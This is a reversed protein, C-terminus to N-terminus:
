RAGAGVGGMEERSGGEESEGGAVLIRQQKGLMWSHGMRHSKWLSDRRGLVRKKGPIGMKKLSRCAIAIKKKRTLIGLGVVGTCDEWLVSPRRVLKLIKKNVIDLTVTKRIWSM